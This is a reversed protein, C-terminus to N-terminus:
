FPGLHIGLQVNENGIVLLMRGSTYTNRAHQTNATRQIGYPVHGVNANAGNVICKSAARLASASDGDTRIQRLMLTFQFM